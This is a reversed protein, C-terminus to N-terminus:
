TISASSPPRQATLRAYDARSLVRWPRPIVGPVRARYDRYREGLERELKRDELYSGIFLYVTIITVVTLRASDMDRTWLLVLGFFYWPHRVVRHLPSLGLRNEKDSPARIGAFEGLDYARSSWIFGVVALVAGGHSLWAFGGQWAWLPQGETMLTLGLLPLLLGIAILNYLLRYRRFLNPRTRQAWAKLAESALLSHLALYATWALALSAIQATIADFIM